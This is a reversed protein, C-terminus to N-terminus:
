IAVFITSVLLLRLAACSNVVLLNHNELWGAWTSDSRTNLKCQGFVQSSVPPLYAAPHTITAYKNCRVQGFMARLKAEAELLRFTFVAYVVTDPKLPTKQVIIYLHRHRNSTAFRNHTKDFLPLM